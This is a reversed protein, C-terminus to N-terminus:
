GSGVSGEAPAIAILEIRFMLAAGPPIPGAGKDGYALNAPLYVLWEDGPRMLELAERFGPVVDRVTLVAPEGRDFSSDFVQGDLLKGEYNIKVEDSPGPRRGGNPGSRLVRYELGSRTTVVGPAHANRAMFARGAAPSDPGAGVGDGVKDVARGCAALALLSVAIAAVLPAAAARM